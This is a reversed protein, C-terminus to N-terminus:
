QAKACRKKKGVVFALTGVLIVVAIGIGLEWYANKNPVTLSEQIKNIQGPLLNWTLLRGDSESTSANTTKAKQPLSLIFRFRMSQVMPVALSSALTSGDEKNADLATLDIDTAINYTTDFFGKEIKIGKGIEVPYAESIKGFPDGEALARTLDGIHKKATFGTKDESTVDSITYSNASAVARLSDLPNEDSDGQMLGAFMPNMLVHYEVDASNDGNISLKYEVDICGSLVLTLLALGLVM